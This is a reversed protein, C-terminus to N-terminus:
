PHGCRSSCSIPLRSHATESPSACSSVSSHDSCPPLTQGGKSGRERRPWPRQIAWGRHSLLWRRGAIWVQHRTRYTYYQPHHSISFTLNFYGSIRLELQLRDALIRSTLDHNHMRHRPPQGLQSTRNQPHPICRGPESASANRNVGVIAGRINELQPSRGGTSDQPRHSPGRSCPSRSPM